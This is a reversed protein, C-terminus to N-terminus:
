EDPIFSLATLVLASIDNGGSRYLNELEPFQPFRKWDTYDGVIMVIDGAWRGSITTFPLDGGGNGPSTMTLLYQIFDLGKKGIRTHEWQKLGTDLNHPHVFEKKTVNILKHYQGM